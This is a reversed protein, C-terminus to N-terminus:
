LKKWVEYFKNSCPGWGGPEHYEIYFNNKNLVCEIYEKKYLEWYDNKMIILSIDNIIEPFDLLIYYFASECDIILTNFDINYKKKLEDYSIINVNKYGKFLFESPVTQLDKQILKRKSLAFNEVYFNLQNLDRNKELEISLNKDIELTVFNNNNNKNLISAIILSNRGINGGIELVKENGTLYISVIKQQPLEDNFSGNLLKLNSHIDVIKNHDLTTIIYNNMDIKITVDDDYETIINNLKIFIKKTIFQIPEGFIWARYLDNNTITMVNNKKNILTNM